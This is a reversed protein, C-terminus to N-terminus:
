PVYKMLSANLEAQRAMQDFTRSRTRERIKERMQFSARAKRKGQEVTEERERLLHNSKRDKIRIMYEVEKRHNEEEEEVKQKLLQHTKEKIANIEKAREAKTQVNKDMSDKAHKIKQETLRALMLRHKMQEREQKEVRIKALLVQEDERAAKEQLEKKREELMQQHLEQSKREKQQICMRKFDKELKAQSDVKEKLRNHRLMEYQNKVQINKKEQLEKMLRFKFAQLMRHELQHNIEGSVRYSPVTEVMMQEPLFTQGQERAREWSENMKIAAGVEGKEKCSRPRREGVNRYQHNIWGPKSVAERFDKEKDLLGQWAKEAQLKRQKTLEEEKYKALMLAAIKKDRDSVSVQTEREVERALHRVQIEPHIIDGLSLSRRIAECERGGKGFSDDKNQSSAWQDKDERQAGTSYDKSDMGPCPRWDQESQLVQTRVERCLRVRRKREKEYTEYLDSILDKSSGPHEEALEDLSRPLLDVPKIGLRACAELSRPSTLVYRSGRGQEFNYLNLHLQPSREGDEM